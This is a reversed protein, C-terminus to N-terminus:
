TAASSGWAAAGTHRHDVTDLDALAAGGPLLPDGSPGYFRVGEGLSEAVDKASLSGKFSSPAIVVKIRDPVM